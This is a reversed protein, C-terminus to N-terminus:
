LLKNILRELRRFNKQYTKESLGENIIRIDAMKLVERVRQGSQKEGSGLDRKESLIFEEWTKPYKLATATLRQLRQFRTKRSAKLEILYFKPFSKLFLVEAPNRIGDIVGRDSGSQSIKELALKALIEPGHEERLENGLDQLVTRKPELGKKVAVEIILDSLTVGSFGRGKLYNMVSSKGSGFKGVLGIVLRVM